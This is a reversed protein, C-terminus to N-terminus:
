KGRRPPVGSCRRGGVWGGGGGRLSNIALSTGERGHASYLLCLRVGCPCSGPSRPSLSPLERGLSPYEAGGFLPTGGM